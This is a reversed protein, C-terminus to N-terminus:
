ETCAPCATVRQQTARDCSARARACRPDSAPMGERDGTLACLERSAHCVDGSARCIDRCATGSSQLQQEAAALRQSWISIADSSALQRDSDSPPTSPTTNITDTSGSTTVSMGTATGAPSTSQPRPQGAGNVSPNEEDRSTTSEATTQGGSTAMSPAGTSRSREASHAPSGGCSNCVACGAFVAAFAGIFFLANAISIPRRDTAAKRSM